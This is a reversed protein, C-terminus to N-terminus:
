DTGLGSDRTRLGFDSPASKPSLVRSEPSTGLRRRMTITNGEQAHFGFSVQNMFKRILFIGLGGVQREELPRDISPEAIAAPDFPNGWNRVELSIEHADCLISLEVKGPRGAYAHEFANAAAEDAALRCAFADDEGLGLEAAAQDVFDHIGALQEM